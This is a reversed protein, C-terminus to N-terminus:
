VGSRKVAHLACWRALPGSARSFRYQSTVLVRSCLFAGIRDGAMVVIALFVLWVAFRKGERM